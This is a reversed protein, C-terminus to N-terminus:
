EDSSVVGSVLNSGYLSGLDLSGSDRVPVVGAIMAKIEEEEKRRMAEAQEVDVAVFRIPDGPKLRGAAPPHRRRLQVELPDAVGIVWHRHSRRVGHAVDTRVM